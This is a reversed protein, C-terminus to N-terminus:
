STPSRLDAPIAEPHQAIYANFREAMIPLDHGVRTMREYLRKKSRGQNMDFKLDPRGFIVDYYPVMEEDALKIDKLAQLPTGWRPSRLNIDAGGDLLRKLLAAEAPVNEAPHSNSPNLLLHPTNLREARTYATPDAGDDLRRNAMALRVNPDKHDIAGLLTTRRGPAGYNAMTAPDYHELFEHYSLDKALYNPPLTM